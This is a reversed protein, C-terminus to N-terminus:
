GAQSMSVAGLQWAELGAISSRRAGYVALEGVVGLTLQRGLARPSLPSTLPVRKASEPNAATRLVVELERASASPARVLDLILGFNRSARASAIDDGSKEVVRLEHGPTSLAGALTRAIAVLQPAHAAVALTTPPGGWGLSGSHQAPLGRLGLHALQGAPVADLLAQLTGPAGWAAAAKGALLVAFGYRPAEFPTADKVARYLGSGFWGVDTAGTEFGRLLDALDSASSVDMGDLFAPGRAAHPNRTFMARGGSLELKFAGCGDPSLPSYGRPVLALLPSALARAVADPAARAFLVSLADKGDLTPADLEGLVGAAGRSRARALTAIVDAGGLSRGAATKLGPRLTVRSGAGHKSPLAEALAPYPAGSADTGYLPEFVAAAFLASFGDSLLAPDMSVIPWPVVLRLRGGYATRGMAWCLGSSGSLALLSRRSLTRSLTTAL